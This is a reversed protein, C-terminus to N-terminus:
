KILLTNESKNERLDNKWPKSKFITVLIVGFGFAVALIPQVCICAIYISAVGAGALIAITNAKSFFM